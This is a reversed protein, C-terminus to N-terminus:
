LHGTVAKVRKAAGEVGACLREFRVWARTSEEGEEEEKNESGDRVILEVREDAKGDRSTDQEPRETAVPSPTTCEEVVEDDEYLDYTRDEEDENVSEDRDDPATFCNGKPEFGLRGIVPVEFKADEVPTSCYCSSSKGSLVDGHFDEFIAPHEPMSTVAYVQADYLGFDGGSWTSTMSAPDFTTYDVTTEPMLAMEIQVDNQSTTMEQAQRTAAHPNVDKSGHHTTTTPQQRQSRDNESNSSSQMHQESEESTPAAGGSLENLFTSFAPSALLMRTLDTLRKNEVMLEENENRLVDNETTKSAIEGELQGIYEKRRSRFARASVKNRLQRREKSSLKKGEESALLREDEDMDEEDKKLRGSNMYSGNAAAQTSDDDNSSAVSSHRMQNLLRSIREEVIPDKAQHSNSVGPRQNPQQQSAQRRQHQQQQAIAQQRQQEKQAKALAQQQHMGPWARPRHQPDSTPESPIEQGGIAVPNVFSATLAPMDHVPSGFDIEMDNSVPQSPATNFDFLDDTNNLSFYADAPPVGVMRQAHGYVTHDAQNVALTNAVAGVPLSTQQKHLEYQYSPGAFTQQNPQVQPVRSSSPIPSPTPGSKRSSESTALGSPDFNIYQDIDLPDLYTSQSLQDSSGHSLAM